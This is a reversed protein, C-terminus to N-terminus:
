SEPSFCWTRWGIEMVGQDYLRPPNVVENLLIGICHGFNQFKRVTYINNKLPVNTDPYEVLASEKCNLYDAVCVVEQGIEFKCEM